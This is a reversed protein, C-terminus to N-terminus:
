PKSTWPEAEVELIFIVARIPVDVQGIAEVETTPMTYGRMTKKERKNDM